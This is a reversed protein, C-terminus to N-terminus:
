RRHRGEFPGARSIKELDERGPPGSKKPDPSAPPRYSGPAAGKGHPKAEDVSEEEEIEEDEYLEEYPFEDGSTPGGAASMQTHFMQHGTMPGTLTVDGTEGGELGRLGAAKAMSRALGAEEPYDPDVYVKRSMMRPRFKGRGGGEVMLGALQAWRSESLPSPSPARYLNIRRAIEQSAASQKGGRPALPGRNEEAGVRRAVARLMNMYAERVDAGTGVDTPSGYPGPEFHGIVKWPQDDEKNYEVFTSGAQDGPLFSGPAKVTDMLFHVDGILVDEQGEGAKGTLWMYRGEAPLDLFFGGGGPDLGVTVIRNGRTMGTRNAKGRPAPAAASVQAKVSPAGPGAEFPDIEAAMGYPQGTLPNIGPGSQGIPFGMADVYERSGFRAELLGAVEEKIIRDLRKRDM